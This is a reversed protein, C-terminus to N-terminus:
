PRTMRAAALRFAAYTGVAVGDLTWSLTSHGTGDVAFSAAILAAILAWQVLRLM